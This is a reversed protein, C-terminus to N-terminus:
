SSLFSVNCHLAALKSIFNTGKETINSIHGGVVLPQEQSIFSPPATSWNLWFGRGCWVLYIVCWSAEISM